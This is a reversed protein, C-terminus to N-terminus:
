DPSGCEFPEYLGFYCDPLPRKQWILKGMQEPLGRLFAIMSAVFM